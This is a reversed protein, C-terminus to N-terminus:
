KEFAHFLLTIAGIITILVGPLLTLLMSFALGLTFSIKGFASGEESWVKKVIIEAIWGGTYCVNAMIAYAIVAFMAFIPPDPLGIPEQIFHECLVATLLCLIISIFGMVGVFLNYPIRRAEWWAIVQWVSQPQESRNFFRSKTIQRIRNLVLTNEM